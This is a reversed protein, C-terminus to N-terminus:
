HGVLHFIFMYGGFECHISVRSGISVNYAFSTFALPPKEQFNRLGQSTNWFKVWTVPLFHLSEFVIQQQELPWKLNNPSIWFIRRFNGIPYMSGQPAKETCSKGIHRRTGCWLTSAFTIAPTTYMPKPLPMTSHSLVSYKILIVSSHDAKAPVEYISATHEPTKLWETWDSLWTWSKTVGYVAACCVERDMVLEWLKSSSMNISNTIGDLWRM